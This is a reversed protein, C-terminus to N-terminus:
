FVTDWVIRQKPIDTCNAKTDYNLNVLDCCPNTTCQEKTLGCGPYHTHQETFKPDKGCWTDITRANGQTTSNITCADVANLVADNSSFCGSVTVNCFGRGAVCNKCGVNEQICNYTLGCQCTKNSRKFQPTDCNAYCTNACCDGGDYNCKQNNNVEDCISDSQSKEICISSNGIV